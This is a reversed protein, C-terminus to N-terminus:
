AARAKLFAEMHFRIQADTYRMERAVPCADRARCGLTMCHPVAGRRLHGACREVEYSTGTFAGVPCASLCPKDMCSACPSPADERVPLSEVAGDFVLAARYAHWLGHRPHILLGLPSPHVPEAARAWRQFPAYPRDSPHVARAGLRVAIPDVVRRTWSDFPEPEERRGREFHTWMDPGVNGLLVVTRGDEETFGGRVAIGTGGFASAIQAYDTM